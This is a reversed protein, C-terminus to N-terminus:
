HFLLPTLINFSFILYFFYLLTSFLFFRVCFYVIHGMNKWMTQTIKISRSNNFLYIFVFEGQCFIILIITSVFGMTEM